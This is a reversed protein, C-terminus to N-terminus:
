RGDAGGRTRHTAVESNSLDLTGQRNVVYRVPRPRRTVLAEECLRGLWDRLQAPRVGLAAALERLERPRELERLVIPRVSEYVSCQDPTAAEPLSQRPRVGGRMFVPVPSGQTDAGGGASGLDPHEPGRKEPLAEGAETVSGVHDRDGHAAVRLAERLGDAWAPEPFAFAGKELLRRNGDAVTKGSTRVFVPVAPMQKLAEIAGAWTGGRGATCAVVLAYDALAYIHKNRGMASGVTFRNRVGYPSVVVLRGERVAARWQGSRAARDLNEALVAAASGGAELATHVSEQDVGRAGGSIVTVGERACQSAVDRTFDIEEASANRSGVVALGGRSLLKPDGAGYLLPPSRHGLGRKLRDPYSEDCRALVWLGRNTWEEVALALVAGRGLLWAIREHGVEPPLLDGFSGSPCDLLDGPRRGAQRLREALTNYERSSLPSPDGDQGRGFTGCLLLVAQTDVSQIQEGM